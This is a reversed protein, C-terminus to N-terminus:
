LATALLFLGATLAAIQYLRDTRTPSLSESPVDPETMQLGSSTEIASIPMKSDPSDM